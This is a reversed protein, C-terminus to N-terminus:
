ELAKIRKDQLDRQWMYGLGRGKMDHLKDLIERANDPWITLRQLKGTQKAIWELRDLVDMRTKM